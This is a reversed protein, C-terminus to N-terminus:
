EQALVKRIDALLTAPVAKPNEARLSEFLKLAKASTEYLGKPNKDYQYSGLCWEIESQLQQDKNLQQLKKLAEKAIKEISPTVVKKVKKATTKKAAKKVAKKPPTKPM